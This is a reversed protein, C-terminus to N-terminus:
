PRLFIQWGAIQEALVTELCNELTFRVLTWTPIQRQIVQVPM